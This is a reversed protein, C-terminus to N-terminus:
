ELRTWRRRPADDVRLRVGRKTTREVKEMDPTTGFLWCFTALGWLYPRVWWAVRVRITIRAM